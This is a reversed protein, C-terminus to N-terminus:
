EYICQTPAPDRVDPQGITNNMHIIFKYLGLIVNCLKHEYLQNMGTPITPLTGSMQPNSACTQRMATEMRLTDDFLLIAGRIKRMAALKEKTPVPAKRPSPIGDTIDLTTHGYHSGSFKGTRWKIQISGHLPRPHCQGLISYWLHVPFYVVFYREASVVSTM